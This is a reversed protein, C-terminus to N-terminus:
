PSPLQQLLTQMLARAARAFIRPLMPQWGTPKPVKGFDDSLENCRISAELARNNGPL